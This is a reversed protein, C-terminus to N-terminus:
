PIGVIRPGTRLGFRGLSQLSTGKPITEICGREGDVDVAEASFDLGFIRRLDQRINLTQSSHCLCTYVQPSIQVQSSPIATLCAGTGSSRECKTKGVPKLSGSGLGREARWCKVRRRFVTAPLRLNREAVHIQQAISGSHTDGDRTNLDINSAKNWPAPRVPVAAAVVAPEVEVVVLYTYKKPPPLASPLPLIFSTSPPLPAPRASIVLAPRGTGGPNVMWVSAQRSYMRPLTLGCISM